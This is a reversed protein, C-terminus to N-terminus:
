AGREGLPPPRRACPRGARPATQGDDLVLAGNVAVYSFGSALQRPEEYTAHETVAQEDFVVLDAWM